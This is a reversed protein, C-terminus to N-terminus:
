RKFPLVYQAESYNWKLYYPVKTSYETIMYGGGEIVKVLHFPLWVM